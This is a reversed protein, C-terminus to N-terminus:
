REYLLELEASGRTRVARRVFRRADPVRDPVCLEVVREGRRRRTRWHNYPYDNIRLFTDRGRPHAVPKTCGSNMPSLTIKDRYAEVLAKADLELVDHALKSYAGANLLRLLRDRTLWFFVRSNLLEYWERPTLNDQLCRLLGKDDMPKNDRIVVRGHKPHVIVVNESRRSSETQFRVEGEVGCFDLLASTSMLGHRSISDWSGAEAMHYLTPCHELLENLEGENVV